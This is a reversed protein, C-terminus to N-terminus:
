WQDKKVKHQGRSLQPLGQPRQLPPLHHRHQLPRRGSPQGREATARTRCFRCPGDDAVVFSTVEVSHTVSKSQRFWIIIKPDIKVM